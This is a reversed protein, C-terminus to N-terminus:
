AEDKTNNMAWHALIQLQVAIRGVGANIVETAVIGLTVLWYLAWTHGTWMNYLLWITVAGRIATAIM